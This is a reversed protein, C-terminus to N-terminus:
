YLPYSFSTLNFNLDTVHFFFNNELRGVIKKLPSRFTFCLYKKQQDLSINKKEGSISKILLSHMFKDSCVQNGFCVQM